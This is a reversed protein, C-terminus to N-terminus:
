FRYEIQIATYTDTKARGVPVTDNRKVTFSLSSYVSGILNTKLATVSEVYTNLEGTEVVARQTFETSESVVWVWGGALRLIAESESTDDVFRTQRAGVGIEANVRHRDTKYVDRGYGVAQSTRLDFGAFRDQEGQATVFLYDRESFKYDSKGALLYREAITSVEDSTRNATANVAHRWTGIEYGLLTALNLNTTETNGTNASFGLTVVGIWTGKPHEDVGDPTSPFTASANFVSSSAGAPTAAVAALAILVTLTFRM